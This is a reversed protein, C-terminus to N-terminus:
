LPLGVGDKLDRLVIHSKFSSVGPMTLMRENVFRSFGDLDACVVRLVYDADGTIFSCQVIEPMGKVAAHFDAAMNEKQKEMTVHVIATVDLGIARANIRAGYGAVVGEDELRQIRRSVQSPSLNVRESLAVNSLRANTQLYRLIEYDFEDLDTM